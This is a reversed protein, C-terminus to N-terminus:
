TTEKEADPRIETVGEDQRWPRPNGRGGATSPKTQKRSGRQLDACSATYVGYVRM